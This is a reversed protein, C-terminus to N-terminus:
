LDKSAVGKNRSVKKGEIDITETHNHTMMKVLDAEVLKLRKRVGCVEVGLTKLERKINLWEAAKAKMEGMSAVESTSMNTNYSHHYSITNSITQNAHTNLQKQFFFFLGM